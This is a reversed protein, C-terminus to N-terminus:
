TAAVGHNKKGMSAGTSASATSKMARLLACAQSSNIWELVNSAIVNRKEVPGNVLYRWGSDRRVSNIMATAIFDNRGGDLKDALPERLSRTAGRPGM